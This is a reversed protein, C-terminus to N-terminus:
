EGLQGWAQQIQQELAQLSGNNHIVVQAHKRREANSLQNAIRAEADAASMGRQAAVRRRGGPAGGAARAPQVGLAVGM